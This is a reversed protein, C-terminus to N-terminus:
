WGTLRRVLKRNTAFYGAVLAAALFLVMTTLSVLVSLGAMYALIVAILGLTKGKSYAQWVSWLLLLAPLLLFIARLTPDPNAATIATGLLNLVAEEPDIGIATWIGSLIGFGIVVQWLYTKSRRAM